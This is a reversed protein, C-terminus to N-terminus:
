KLTRPITTLQACCALGFLPGRTILDDQGSWKLFHFTGPRICASTHDLIQETATGMALWYTDPRATEVDTLSLMFRFAYFGASYKPSPRQPDCADDIVNTILNLATRVAKIESDLSQHPLSWRDNIITMIRWCSNQFDNSNVTKDTPLQLLLKYLVLVPEELQQLTRNSTSGSLLCELTVALSTLKGLIAPEVSTEKAISELEGVFVHLRKEIEGISLASEVLHAVAHLLQDDRWISVNEDNSSLYHQDLQGQWIDLFRPFQRTHIFANALPMVVTSRIMDYPLRTESQLLTNTNASIMKQGDRSIQNLLLSLLDSPVQQLCEKNVQVNGSPNVFITADLQICLSVVEWEQETFIRQHHFLPRVIRELTATDLILKSQVCSDLMKVSFDVTIMQREDDLDYYDFAHARQMIHNLLKQLWAIENRRDKPVVRMSHEAAIGFLFTVSELIDLSVVEDVVVNDMLPILLMELLGTPIDPDRVDRLRLANLCSSRAPILIHNRLLDVLRASVLRIEDEPEPNKHYSLLLNLVSQFCIKSFM